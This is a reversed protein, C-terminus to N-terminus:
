SHNMGEESGTQISEEGTPLHLVGALGFWNDLFRTGSDFIKRRSSKPPLLSKGQELAAIHKQAMEAAKTQPWDIQVRKYYMLAADTKALKEYYLGVYFEKYARQEKIMVLTDSIGLEEASKKYRAQYDEFYSAAGRLVTADFEPSTYAAHLAQAMRLLAVRGYDGTPWRDEIEAWTQYADLFSGRREQNDALTVLSRYALPSNGGRDALDRLIREGEDFAPFRLIKLFVRKQGAAYAAGISYLREAAAPYVPSDPYEVLCKTYLKAAKSWKGKAYLTEAQVFVDLDPGSFQPYDTKLKEAAKVAEKSQGKEIQQNIQSIALLFQGQPTTSVNEWGEEPSLMWTEAAPCSLVGLGWLSLWIAALEKTKIM